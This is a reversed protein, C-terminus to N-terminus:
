PSALGAAFVEDHLLLFLLIDSHLFLFYLEQCSIDISEWLFNKKSFFKFLYLDSCSNRLELLSKLYKQNLNM